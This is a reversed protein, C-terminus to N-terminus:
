RRSGGPSGAPEQLAELALRHMLAAGVPLLADNFDYDEAHLGPHRRGAGLGFLAGRGLRALVGFDESWRFASERPRAVALGNERAARRVLAAAAPDNWTVPFVEEWDLRCRLGHSRAIDRAATTAQKRLASLADDDDARLTALIEAEGPAIGFAPDGLRAHTVTVLELADGADPRPPLTVLATILEGMARDPSRGQEPHAAHATRGRLTVRLGASGAAFAGPRVLVRGVDYGPLNHLAFLWDPRLAAFRDDAAVAAAGAGTEEAPQFLAVVRGCAPRARALRRAVELLIAMHGDHGCKHSCGPTRSAHRLPISEPVAVADLEARLVVTPGPRGGDFLAAVGHGGLGTLLGDPRLAELRAAVFAATAAEAGSPEALAHLQRRLSAQRSPAM